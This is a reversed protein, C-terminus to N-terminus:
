CDSKITSLHSHTFSLLSVQARLLGVGGENVWCREVNREVNQFPSTDKFKAYLIKVRVTDLSLTSSDMLISKQLLMLINYLRKYLHELAPHM